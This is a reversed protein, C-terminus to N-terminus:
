DLERYDRCIINPVGDHACADAQFRGSNDQSMRGLHSDRLLSTFDAQGPFFEWIRARLKIEFNKLGATLAFEVRKARVRGMKRGIFHLQNVLKPQTVAIQHRWFLEVMVIDNM